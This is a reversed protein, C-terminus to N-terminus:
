RGAGANRFARDLEGSYSTDYTQRAGATALLQEIMGIIGQLADRAEGSATGFMRQLQTRFETLQLTYTQLSSM